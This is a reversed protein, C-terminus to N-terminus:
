SILAAMEAAISKNTKGSSSPISGSSTNPGWMWTLGNPCQSITTSTTVANTRYVITSPDSKLAWVYHTGSLNTVELRPYGENQFFNLVYHSYRELGDETTKFGSIPVYYGNFLGQGASKVSIFDFSTCVPM